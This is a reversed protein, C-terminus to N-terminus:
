MLLQNESKMFNTEFVMYKGFSGMLVLKGRLLYTITTLNWARTYVTSCYGIHIRFGLDAAEIGQLPGTIYYLVFFFFAQIVYYYAWVRCVVKLLSSDKVRLSKDDTMSKGQHLAVAMDRSLTFFHFWIIRICSMLHSEYCREHKESPKSTYFCLGGLRM